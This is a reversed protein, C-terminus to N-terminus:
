KRLNNIIVALQDAQCSIEEMCNALEEDTLKKGQKLMYLIGGAIMKISHLPQKLDHSLGVAMADNSLIKKGPIPDQKAAAM